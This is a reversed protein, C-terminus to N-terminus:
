LDRTVRGVAVSLSIAPEGDSEEMAKIAHLCDSLQFYPEGSDGIINGNSDSLAQWRWHGRNDLYYEYTLV